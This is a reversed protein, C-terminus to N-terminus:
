LWRHHTLVMEQFQRASFECELNVQGEPRLPNEVAQHSPSVSTPSTPRQRRPSKSRRQRCGRQCGCPKYLLSQSASNQKRQLGGPVCRFSKYLFPIRPNAFCTRVNPVFPGACETPSESLQRAHKSVAFFLWVPEFAQRANTKEKLAPSCTPRPHPPYIDVSM